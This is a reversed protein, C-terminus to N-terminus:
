RNDSKLRWLLRGPSSSNRGRRDHGVVEALEAAAVAIGESIAKLPRNFALIAMGALAVIVAPMLFFHPKAM